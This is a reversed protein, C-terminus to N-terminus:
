DPMMIVYPIIENIRFIQTKQIKGDLVIALQVDNMRNMTKRIKQMGQESLVLSIKRKGTREKIRYAHQLDSETLIPTPHIYGSGWQHAYPLAQANKFPTYQSLHFTIPSRIPTVYSERILSCGTLFLIAVAIWLFRKKM